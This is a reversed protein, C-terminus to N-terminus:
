EDERVSHNRHIEVIQRYGEESLSFVRKHPRGFFPGPQTAEKLLGQEKLSTIEGGLEAVDIYTRRVLEETELRDKDLLAGLVKQAQPRQHLRSMTEDGAATEQRGSGQSDQPQGFETEPQEESRYFVDELTVGFYDAAKYALRLSPEYDQREIYGVTRHNLELERALEAQSLGEARRFEKVRNYIAWQEQQKDQARNRQASM